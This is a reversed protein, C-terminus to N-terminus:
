IRFLSMSEKKQLMQIHFRTPLDHFFGPWPKFLLYNFYREWLHTYIYMFPPVQYVTVQADLDDAIRTLSFRALDVPDIPLDKPIPWPNLEKFKPFWYMIRQYKRVPHGKEGFIQVLLVKTELNPMIGSVFDNTFWGLGWESILQSLCNQFCVMPRWRSWFKCEVSRNGPITISCGRSLIEPCLCEKQSFM